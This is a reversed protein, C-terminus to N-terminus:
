RDKEADRCGGLAGREACEAREDECREVPAERESQQLLRDEQCHPGGRHDPPQEEPRADEGGDERAQASRLEDALVLYELGHGGGERQLDDGHEDEPDERLEREPGDFRDVAASLRHLERYGRPSTVESSRGSAKLPYAGLVSAGESSSIRWHTCQPM